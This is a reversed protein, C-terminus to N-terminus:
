GICFSVYLGSLPVKVSIVYQLSFPFGKTIWLNDRLESVGAAMASISLAMAPSPTAKALLMVTKLESSTSLDELM